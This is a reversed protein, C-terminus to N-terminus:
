YCRRFNVVNRLLNGIRRLPAVRRLATRVPAVRYTPRAVSAATGANHLSDHMAEAQATTMGSANVGHGSELHSRIEGPYTWHTSVQPSAVVTQPKAPVPCVGGPCNGVASLPPMVFIPPKAAAVPVPAYQPSGPVQMIAFCLCVVVFASVASRIM